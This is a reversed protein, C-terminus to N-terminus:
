LLKWVANSALLRWIVLVFLAREADKLRALIAEPDVTGALRSTPTM